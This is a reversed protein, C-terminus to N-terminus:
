AVITDLNGCHGNASNRSNASEIRDSFRGRSGRNRRSGELKLRAGGWPSKSHRGPEAFDQDFFVQNSGILKLLSHSMLPLVPAPQSGRQHFQPKDAIVFDGLDEGALIPNGRDVQLIIFDIRRDYLQNWIMGSELTPEVSVMAM